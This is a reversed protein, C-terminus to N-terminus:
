TIAFNELQVSKLPYGRGTFFAKITAIIARSFFQEQQDIEEVMRRGVREALMARVAERAATIEAADPLRDAGVAFVLHVDTGLVKLGTLSYLQYVFHFSIVEPAIEAREGGAAAPPSLATDPAVVEVVALERPSSRVPQRRTVIRGAFLLQGGLVLASGVYCLIALWRTGAFRDLPSLGKEGEDEGVAPALPPVAAPSMPASRSASSTLGDDDDLIFDGDSEDFEFDELFDDEELLKDLDLDDLEAKRAM